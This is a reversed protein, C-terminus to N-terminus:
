GLGRSVLWWYHDVAADRSHLYRKHYGVRELVWGGGLPCDPYVKVGVDLYETLASRTARVQERHRALPSLSPTGAVIETSPYTQTPDSM